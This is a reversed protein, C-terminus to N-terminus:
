ELGVSARQGKLCHHTTTPTAPAERRRQGKLAVREVRQLGQEPGDASSQMRRSETHHQGHLDLAKTTQKGHRPLRSGQDTGVRHLRGAVM